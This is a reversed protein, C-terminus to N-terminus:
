DPVAANAMERYWAFAERATLPEPMFWGRIKAATRVNQLAEQETLAGSEKPTPPKEPLLGGTIDAPDPFHKSTRTHALLAGKCADYGYPETVYKWALKAEASGLAARNPYLTRLLTYFREFDYDSM